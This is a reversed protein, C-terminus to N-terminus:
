IFRKRKANPRLNLLIAKSASKNTYFCLNPCTYYNKFTYTRLIDFRLMSVHKLSIM